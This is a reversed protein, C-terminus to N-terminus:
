KTVKGPSIWGRRFFYDSLYAVAKEVGRATMAEVSSRYSRIGGIGANMLAAGATVGGSAAAGVGGAALAGPMSGSDVNALFKLLLTPKSQAARFYELGHEYAQIQFEVRAQGTGFGILFRVAHNGEDVKVFQGTIALAKPPLPTNRPVREVPLGLNRLQEVFEEAAVKQVDLGVQPEIQDSTVDSVDNVAGPLFGANESVEAATVAFDYVLIREPRQLGWKSSEYRPTIDTAACGGAALSVLAALVVHATVRLSATTTPVRM